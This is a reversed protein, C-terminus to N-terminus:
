VAWKMDNGVLQYLEHPSSLTLLPLFIRHALVGRNGQEHQMGEWGFCDGIMMVGRSLRQIQLTPIEKKMMLARTLDDIWCGEILHEISNEILHEILDDILNEIM